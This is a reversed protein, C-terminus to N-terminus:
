CLPEVTGTILENQQLFLPKSDTWLGDVLHDVESNATTCKRSRSFKLGKKQYRFVFNTDSM